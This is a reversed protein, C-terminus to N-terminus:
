EESNKIESDSTFRKKLNSVPNNFTFTLAIINYLEDANDRPLYENTYSLELQLDDTILYGGGVEFRNRDFFSGYSRLFIEEDALVYFVGKRLFKSNLPRLYKLMQRYRYRDEYVGDSNMMYRFEGRIRTSLTYGTKHIFYIGQVSLRYEPTYYQGIDPVDKNYFYALSSSLKWRPSLYYHGWGYIYRQINTKLMRDESPTSSFLSGIWIESAWKDNIARALQFENSFQNYANTQANTNLQFSFLVMLLLIFSVWVYKFMEAKPIDAVIAKKGTFYM